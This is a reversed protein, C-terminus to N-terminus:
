SNLSSILRPRKLSDLLIVIAPLLESLWSTSLRFAEEGEEELRRPRCTVAFADFSLAASTKSRASLRIGFTEVGEEGEELRRPRCAVVSADFGLGARTKNRTGSSPGCSMRRFTRMSPCSMTCPLTYMSFQVRSSTLCGSSNVEGVQEGTSGTM